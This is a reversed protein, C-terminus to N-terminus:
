MSLLRADSDGEPESRERIMSRCMGMGVYLPGQIQRCAAHSGIRNVLLQVLLLSPLKAEDTSILRLLPKVVYPQVPSIVMSSSRM